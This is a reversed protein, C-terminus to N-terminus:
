PATGAAQKMARAQRLNQLVGPNGPQQRLIQEYQAIAGDPQRSLLLLNGLMLRAGLNSPDAELASRYAAIAEPVRDLRRLAEAAGFRAAAFAPRDKAAAEFQALAEATRGLRDFALGLDYHVDPADPQRRLAAEYLGAAEAARGLRLLANGANVRADDFDDELRVAELLQVVAEADRGTRALVIGLNYHASPYAPQLRLAERFCREADGLRDRGLWLYGLNNDARANDPRKEVTDQWLGFESRYDRNREAAVAGLGLALAAAVPLGRWGIVRHLALVALVLLAALPLYMRHEALSETVVPVFSSSPALILFFWAGLFGAPRRRAVAVATAALLGALLLARPLVAGLPPNNLIGYDFVLPHPWAALRVYHLIALCQIRAYEWSTVAGGFGASGARGGTTAVWYALPLWTLGLGVYLWRRRVWAARFSGAFFTRDHLLVVLPASVMVEKSAMGALCAAVAGAQWWGPRPAEAARIFAYLTLLFFLGMLSEVRQVTYTVAETQLPHVLWLGTAALALWTSDPGFRDRLAPRRLTRRIVGFLALGALLHILLNIAHYGAPDTGGLAYNVALSLNGLPRGSVTLDPRMGTLVPGPPWWQRISANDVRAPTDDYVFAGSFCNHWALGFAAALLAVSGALWCPRPM